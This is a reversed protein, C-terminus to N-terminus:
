VIKPAAQIYSEVADVFDVAESYATEAEAQNVTWVEGYDSRNEENM